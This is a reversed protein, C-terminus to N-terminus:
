SLGAAKKYFRIGSLVLFDSVRAVNIRRKQAEGGGLMKVGSSSLHRSWTTVSPNMKKVSIKKLKLSQYKKKM